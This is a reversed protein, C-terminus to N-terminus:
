YLEELRALLLTAGAAESWAQRLESRWLEQVSAPLRELLVGFKKFEGAISAAGSSGVHREAIQDFGYKYCRLATGLLDNQKTALWEHTALHGRLLDWRGMLDPFAYDAMARRIEGSRREIQDIYPDGGGETWVQYCLEVYEILSAFWFWGDSLRRAWSISEDLYDLGAGPDDRGFIRGARNLASPYGRVSLDRCLDVALKVLRKAETVADREPLLQIGDDAAQFLCIAQEQYILGLWPWSRLEQFVLEAEAYAKWAMHFRREYRYVEGCVSWSIGEERRRKLRRRVNIASEVLNVGERYSGRLGKVYAWNTQISAMEERDDESGGAALLQSIADRAKMYAVDAEGWTGENRYYFGLEKYAKAIFNLRDPTELGNADALARDFHEKGQTVSGPIRMYANGRLISLRFRVQHSAGAFPVVHLLDLAAQCRESRILYDAMSLGIEVHAQYGASGLWERFETIREGVVDGSIYEAGGPLFRQMEFILLDQFFIDNDEKAQALFDLFLRCGDSFNSLTRYYFYVAKFHSLERRQVDLYGVSTIFAREDEGSIPREDSSSLRNDLEDQRLDLDAMMGDLERERTGIRENYITAARDWLGRRWQGDQDHLPVIRRALEEAVVDHLTVYQQRARTRIWPTDRLKSWADDLSTVDDPLSRDKMFERWISRSVSQRAVALRKIAEHWFDTDRYQAMLRRNFEERLNRGERTMNGEYPLEREVYGLTVSAEDPMGRDGLYSVTFALWLPHGRTLGALVGKEDDTLGDAVGSRALYELASERTFDNLGVVTTPIGQYPEEMQERLPDPHTLPPPDQPRGSLIFLTAPLAKMLQTLTVLLDMGRIAEVTDFIIVVTKGSDEVFRQYCEIFVRKIQGLHSIVTEHGIRPRTYRYLLALHDLYPSFYRGANGPDLAESIYRELNSLLWYESDDIDIPGVWITDPQAAGTKVLARVLCTKGVGGEGYLLV